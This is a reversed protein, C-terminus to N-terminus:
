ICNWSVKICMAVKPIHLIRLSGLNAGATSVGCCKFRFHVTVVHAKCLHRSYYKEEKRKWGSDKGQVVFPLTM